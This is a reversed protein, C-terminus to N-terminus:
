IQGPALEIDIPIGLVPNLTEDWVIYWFQPSELNAFQYDIWYKTVSDPSVPLGYYDACNKRAVQADSENEFKYGKFTIM